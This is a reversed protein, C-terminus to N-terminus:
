GGDGGVTVPRWARWAWAGGHAYSYIPCRGNADERRLPRTRRIVGEGTRRDGLQGNANGEITHVLAGDVREVVCIHHGRAQNARTIALVDGPRLADLQVAPLAPGFREETAGLRYVSAFRLRRVASALGAEAYCWAAFAGCWEFQGNRVYAPEWTWGLGAHIYETVRPSPDRVIRAWETLAASVVREPGTM